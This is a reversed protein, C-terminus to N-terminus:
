PSPQGAIIPQGSRDMQVVANARLHARSGAPYKDRHEHIFGNPEIYSCVRGLTEDRPRGKLGMVAMELRQTLAEILTDVGGTADLRRFFRHPGAPNPLLRGHAKQAIASKLLELREAESLFQKLVLWPKPPEPRLSQWRCNQVRLRCHQRPWASTQM